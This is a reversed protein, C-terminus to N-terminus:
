WRARITSRVFFLMGFTSLVLSGYSIQRLLGLQWALFCFESKNYYLAFTCSWCCRSRGLIIGGHAQLTTTAPPNDSRAAAVGRLAAGRLITRLPAAFFLVDRRQRKEVAAGRARYPPHALSCTSMLEFGHQFRETEVAQCNMAKLGVTEFIM